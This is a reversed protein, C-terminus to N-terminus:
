NEEEDEKRVWFVFDNKEDDFASDLVGKKVLSLVINSIMRHNMDVLLQDYSDEMICPVQDREVIQEMFMSKVENFPLLEEIEPEVRDSLKEIKKLFNADSLDASEDDFNYYVLKRSFDILKDINSLELWSEDM